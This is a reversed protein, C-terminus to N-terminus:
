PDPDANFPSAPDPDEIFNFAPIPDLDASFHDPYTVSCQDVLKHYEILFINRRDSVGYLRDM